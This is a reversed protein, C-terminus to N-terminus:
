RKFKDWFSKLKDQAEKENNGIIKHIREGEFDIKIKFLHKM